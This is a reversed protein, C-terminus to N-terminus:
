KRDGLWCSTPHSTNSAPWSLGPCFRGSCFWWKRGDPTVWANSSAEWSAPAGHVIRHGRRLHSVLTHVTHTDADIPSQRVHSRWLEACLDEFDEKALVCSPVWETGAPARIVGSRWGCSCGVQVHTVQVCRSGINEGPQSVLERRRADGVFPGTEDPVLAVLHGQHHSEDTFWGM